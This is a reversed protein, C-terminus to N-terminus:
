TDSEISKMDPLTGEAPPTFTLSNRSRKSNKPIEAKLPMVDLQFPTM